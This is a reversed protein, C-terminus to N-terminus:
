RPGGPLSTSIIIRAQISRDAAKDGQIVVMDGVPLDAVKTASLSIVQTSADTHVTVSGGTMTDLTLTGGNNATITGMTAGLEDINGLGPISPIPATSQGSRPTGTVRAPGPLTSTSAASSSASDDGGLMLGAVVGVVAVLAVVGLTLAVWLGTNRKPPQPPGPAVMGGQGPRPGADQLTPDAWQQGYASEYSGWQNDYPPFERTSNMPPPPWAEFQETSPYAPGAGHGYAETYETTHAPQEFGSKDPTGLHETPADEPRQAWPDDRNTM